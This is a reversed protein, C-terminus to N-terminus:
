ILWQILQSSTFPYPLRRTEMLVEMVIHFADNLLHESAVSMQVVIM